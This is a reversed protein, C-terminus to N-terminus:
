DSGIIQRWTGDQCYFRESANNMFGDDIADHDVNPAVIPEANAFEPHSTLYEYTGRIASPDVATIVRSFVIGSSGGGQLYDKDAAKRLPEPCRAEGGWLIHIASETGDSCIIAWDLQGAKGFSGKIV